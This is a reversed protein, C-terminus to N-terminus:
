CPHDNVGGGADHDAMRLISGYAILTMECRVKRVYEEPVTSLDRCLRHASAFEAKAGACLGWLVAM